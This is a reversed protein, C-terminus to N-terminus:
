PNKRDNSGGSFRVKVLYELFKGLYNLKEAKEPPVILIVLMQVCVLLLVLLFSISNILAVLENLNPLTM